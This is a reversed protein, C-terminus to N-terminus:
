GSRSKRVIYIMKAIGVSGIIAPYAYIWDQIDTGAADVFIENSYATVFYLFAAFLLLSFADNLLSLIVILIVIIVIYTVLSM